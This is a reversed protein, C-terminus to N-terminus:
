RIFFKYFMIGLCIMFMIIAIKNIVHMAKLNFNKPANPDNKRFFYLLAESINLYHLLTKM